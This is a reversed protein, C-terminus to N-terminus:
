WYRLFYYILKQYELFLVKSDLRRTWWDVPNFAREAAAAEVRVDINSGRFVRRLTLRSRRTHFNSTVLILRKMGHTQAHQLYRGAEQATSENYGDVVSMASDPVGLYRLVAVTATDTQPVVVGYRKWEMERYPFGEKSVLIKPAWGQHYLEAARAGRVAGNGSLVAIADAKVLPDSVVLAEGAGRLLPKRFLYLLGFIGVLAIAVWGFKRGKGTAM